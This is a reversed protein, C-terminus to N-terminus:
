IPYNKKRNCALFILLLANLFSQFYFLGVFLINNTNFINAFDKLMNSRCQERMSKNWKKKRFFDGSKKILEISDLLFSIFNFNTYVFNMSILLSNLQNSYDSIKIFRSRRRLMSQLEFNAQKQSKIFLFRIFTKKFNSSFKWLFSQCM